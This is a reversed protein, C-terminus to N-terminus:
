AKGAVNGYVGLRIEKRTEVLFFEQRVNSENKRGGITNKLKEMEEPPIKTYNEIYELIYASIEDFKQLVIERMQSM